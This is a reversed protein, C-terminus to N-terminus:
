CKLSKASKNQFQSPWILIYINRPSSKPFFLFFAGGVPLDTLKPCLLVREGPPRRRRLAGASLRPQLLSTEGAPDGPLFGAAGAVAHLSKGRRQHHLLRAPRQHQVGGDRQLFCQLGSVGPLRQRQLAGGGGCLEHHLTRFPPLLWFLFVLEHWVWM